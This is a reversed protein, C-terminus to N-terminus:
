SVSVGLHRYPEDKQKYYRGEGRVIRGVKPIEVRM